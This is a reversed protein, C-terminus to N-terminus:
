NTVESLNIELPEKTRKEELWKEIKEKKTMSRMSNLNKEEFEDDIGNEDADTYYPNTRSRLIENIKVGGEGSLVDISLRDKGKANNLGIDTAIPIGRVFLSWTGARKNVQVTVHNLLARKSAGGFVTPIYVDSKEVGEPSIYVIEAMEISGDLPSTAPVIGIQAGKITISTGISVYGTVTFYDSNSSHQSLKISRSENPALDFINKDKDPYLDVRTMTSTNLFERGQMNASVNEERATEASAAISFSAALGTLIWRKFANSCLTLKM